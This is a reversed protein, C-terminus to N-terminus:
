AGLTVPFTSGVARIGSKADVGGVGVPYEVGAEPGREGLAVVVEEDMDGDTAELFVGRNALSECVPM